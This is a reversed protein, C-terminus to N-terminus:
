REREGAAGELAVGPVKALLRPSPDGPVIRQMPVADRTSLPHTHHLALFSDPSIALGKGICANPLRGQAPNTARSGVCAPDGIPRERNEQPYRCCGPCRHGFFPWRALRIRQWANGKTAMRQRENGHTAKSQGFSPLPPLLLCRLAFAHDM